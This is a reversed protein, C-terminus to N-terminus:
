FAALFRDRFADMRELPATPSPRIGSQWHWSAIAKMVSPDKSIIGIPVDHNAHAGSVIAAPQHDGLAIVVLNPDDVNHLFDFLSGLSYQVSQAYAQQVGAASRWVDEASDGEAPQPGYISGDGVASWPVPQPLPAWPTHSSVLDVEAMVPQHPGALEHDAFYKWTYEDPIRAYGFRPGQYGVNNATLLEDYHYFSTGFPWPQADSPVDSVTKWGANHFADSLTFRTSRIVKSYIPQKDVWLGTQLTSHALWSLGGFTPSTLWASQASYGDADLQAQGAHLTRDVGKSFGTGQVAVQGYSEVFAFVVDKGRLATLLQSPPLGAYADSTIEAPLRAVATRTEAAQQAAQGIAGISASAAVPRGPIISVGVLALVGWAAAVAVLTAGGPRPRARVAAAVRLGAWALTAMVTLALLVVGVLVAVAWGAGISSRLVGFADILQPSDSPDFPIDLSQEFGFDAAAALLGAGVLVGFLVAVAVRAARWPLLALVIVAVISEAPLAIMAAARRAALLGPVLPILVLLAVAVATGPRLRRRSM